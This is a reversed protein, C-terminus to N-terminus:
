IASSGARSQSVPLYRTAGGPRTLSYTSYLFINGVDVNLRTIDLALAFAVGDVALPREDDFGPLEHGIPFLRVRVGVHGGFPPM